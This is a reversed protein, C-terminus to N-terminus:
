DKKARTALLLTSCALRGFLYLNFNTVAEGSPPNALQGTVKEMKEKKNNKIYKSDM